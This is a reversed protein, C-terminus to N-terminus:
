LPPARCSQGDDERQLHRRRVSSTRRATHFPHDWCSWPCWRSSRLHQEPKSGLEDIGVSASVGSKTLGVADPFHNFLQRALLHRRLDRVSREMDTRREYVDLSTPRSAPKQPIRLRPTNPLKRSRRDLLPNFGNAKVEATVPDISSNMSDSAVHQTWM